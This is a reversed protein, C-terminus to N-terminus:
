KVVIEYKLDELEKRTFEKSFVIQGEKTKAEFLYKDPAWPADSPPITISCYDKKEGPKIETNFSDKNISFTIVQDTKNIVSFPTGQDAGLCANFLMMSCLLGFCIIYASIKKM